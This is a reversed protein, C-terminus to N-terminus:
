KRSSKSYKLDIIEDNFGIITDLTSLTKGDVHSINQETSVVLFEKGNSLPLIRLVGTDATKVDSRIELKKNNLDVNM